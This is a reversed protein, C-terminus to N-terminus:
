GGQDLALTRVEHFAERQRKRFIKLLCLSILSQGHKRQRDKNMQRHRSNRDITHFADSKAVYNVRNDIRSLVKALNAEGKGIDHIGFFGKRMQLDRSFNLAKDTRKRRKKTANKRSRWLHLSCKARWELLRQKLEGGKVRMAKWAKIIHFWNLFINYQHRNTIAKAAKVAVREKHDVVRENHMRKTESRMEQVTSFETRIKSLSEGRWKSYASALQGKSFKMWM